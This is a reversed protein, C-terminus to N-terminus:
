AYATSYKRNGGYCGRSSPTVSIGDNANKIAAQLGRLKHNWGSSIALGAADDGASNIRLGSSLREMAKKLSM